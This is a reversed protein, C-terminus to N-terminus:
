GFNCSDATAIVSEPVKPEQVKISQVGALFPNCLIRHYKFRGYENRSERSRVSTGSVVQHVAEPIMQHFALASEMTVYSPGHIMAAVAFPHPDRDRFERTLCYVGPALRIVEEHRLAKNLLAKRAGVTVKQFLGDIVTKDFLGAPPHLRWVRESLTQMTHGTLRGPSPLRSSCM